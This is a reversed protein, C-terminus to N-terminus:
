GKKTHIVCSVMVAELASFVCSFPGASIFISGEHQLAAQQRGEDWQAGTQDRVGVGSQGMWMPSVSLSRRLMHFILPNQQCPLCPFFVVEADNQTARVVQPGAGWGKGSRGEYSDAVMQYVTM